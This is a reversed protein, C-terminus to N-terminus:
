FRACSRSVNPKCSAASAVVDRSRFLNLNLYRSLLMRWRSLGVAASCRQRSSEFVSRRVRLSGEMLVAGLGNWNSLGNMCEPTARHSGPKKGAGAYCIEQISVVESVIPQRDSVLGYASRMCLCDLNGFGGGM